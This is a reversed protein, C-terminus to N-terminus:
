LLAKEKLFKGEKDFQVAVKSNASNVVFEYIESSDNMVKYIKEVKQASYDSKSWADKVVQPLDNMTIETKQDSDSKIIIGKGDNVNAYSVSVFGFTAIAILSLILKKM